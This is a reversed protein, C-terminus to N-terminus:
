SLHLISHQSSEKQRRNHHNGKKKRHNKKSYVTLGKDATEGMNEDRTILFAEEQTCEEWIRNFSILKRRACIGQIFSYSSRPLGNLTTIDAEVEEVNDVIAELKDKIHYIITFYSQIIESMQMKVDKLQTRLTMKMNINNGEYLSNIADFM